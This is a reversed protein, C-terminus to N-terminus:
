YCCVCKLYVSFAEVKDLLYHQVDSQSSSCLETTNDERVDEEHEVQSQEDKQRAQWRSKKTETAETGKRCTPSSQRLETPKM